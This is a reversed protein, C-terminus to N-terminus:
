GNVVMQAGCDVSSGATISQYTIWYNGQPAGPGDILTTTFGATTWIAPADQRRVSKPPQVFNPVTCLKPTATTTTVTITTGPNTTSSGCVNSDTLTVTYTDATNFTYNGPNQVSFSAVQAGASNKVTWAWTDAAGGGSADTLDVTLPGLGSPPNANIAAVPALCPSEAIATGAIGDKIPFVASASVAVTSGVINSIVPTVVAFRCTLTVTAHDGIGNSVGDGNMDTFVPAPATTPTLQCNTASADAAIEGQYQTRATMAATDTSSWASPNNAAFNAAIRAENQLNVWGLYIRGFDLGILTLFLLIPLVLAFEVLGQGRQRKGARSPAPRASGLIGERSDGRSAM